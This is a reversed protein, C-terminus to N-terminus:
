PINVTTECSTATDAGAGGNCYDAVGAGGILRDSGREGYLRDNGGQGYITDNGDGGCIIDGGSGGRIIDNGGLGHIVDPGPTGQLDPDDGPKGLITAVRGACLVPPPLTTETGLSTWSTEAGDQNRAKVRFAYGTNPSLGTSNWSTGTTWGSNTGATTNEAYYQTGSPNSGGTWNAQISDSTVNTFASAGPANAATYECSISSYTTANGNGDRAGVRYCYNHNAGLGADTYLTSGQWGSDSGGAGGTPSSTYDFYYSIPPVPDSATTATMRIQTSSLEFPEVAWTSPNPTPPNTEVTVNIEQADWYSSDNNSSNGDTASDYVVGLWYTGPPTNEPITVQVMNVRVSGLAGFSWGYLQSSLLTDATSILNNTSLRVTYNFTTNLAGNTANAALHNLTTTATGARITSPEGNMDLAQLDFTAGRGYDPIFTNNLYEVWAQSTRVYRGITSRNSTSAIGGVYRSSGDIRYLNSGSEGGWLATFCGATTNIQFQNGPCSDITGWWYYMDRGNHLGPQGCSEAPYAGVNYTATPCGGGYEWGYWGTLSGVARDLAVVGWDFDWNGDQTWSTWSGFRIGRAAGYTEAGEEIPIINGNGDWGPYVYVEDAWNGGNGQHICHGALQVTRMDRMAGSCVFWDTGFRMAVKVNMRWPHDQVNGIVTKTGFATPQLTEDESPGGDAGGYYGGQRTRQRPLAEPTPDLGMPGIQTEGTAPDHVEAEGPGSDETETAADPPYAMPMPPIEGLPPPGTPSPVAEGQAPAFLVHGGPTEVAQVEPAPGPTPSPPEGAAVSGALLPFTAICALTLRPTTLRM